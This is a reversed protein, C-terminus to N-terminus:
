RIATVDKDETLDPWQAPAGSNPNLKGPPRIINPDTTKGPLEGPKSANDTEAGWVIPATCLLSITIFGYAFKKFM